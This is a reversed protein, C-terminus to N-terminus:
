PTVGIYEAATFPLAAIISSSNFAPASGFTAKASPSVGSMVAARVPLAAATRSSSARPAVTFATSFHFCCVASIHAACSPLASTAFIRM